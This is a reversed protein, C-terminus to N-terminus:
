IAEGGGPAPEYGVGAGVQWNEGWDKDYRLAAGWIDDEFWGWSATFGYWEPSWYSVGNRRTSCDFASTSTYCQSIQQWKLQGAAGVETNFGKPRLFFGRNMHNDSTMTDELVTVDTDKTVDDKPTYTLGGRLQGLKKNDLYIWSHRVFLGRAQPGNDDDIQNVTESAADRDEIEIRFGASWDGVITAKGKFGFRTSEYSNDVSYVNQEAGDDWFLTARNVKGYVTVAVKKNGKRVTTAELEAVREELDACCDGGLDAARVPKQDLVAWGVAGVIAALALRKAAESSGGIM